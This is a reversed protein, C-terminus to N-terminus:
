TLIFLSRIKKKCNFCFQSNKFAGTIMYINRKVLYPIFVDSPKFNICASIMEISPMFYFVVSVINVSSHDRSPCPVFIGLEKLLLLYYNIM